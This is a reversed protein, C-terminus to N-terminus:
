QFIGGKKIIIYIIISGFFDNLVYKTFMKQFIIFIIKVLHFLIDM